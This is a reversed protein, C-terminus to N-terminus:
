SIDSLMMEAIKRKAGSKTSAVSSYDNETTHAFWESGDYVYTIEPFLEDRKQLLENLESVPNKHATSEIIVQNILEPESSVNNNVNKIHEAKGGIKLGLVEFAKFSYDDVIHDFDSLRSAISKRVIKRIVEEDNTHDKQERNYHNSVSSKFFVVTYTYTLDVSM